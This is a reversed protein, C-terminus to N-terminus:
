QNDRKLRDMARRILESRALTPTLKREYEILQDAITPDWQVERLLQQYLDTKGPNSASSFPVPVNEESPSNDLDVTNPPKVRELL